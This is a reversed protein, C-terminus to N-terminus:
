LSDQIGTFIMGWLVNNVLTGEGRGGGMWPNSYRWIAVLPHQICVIKVLSYQIRIRDGNHSDM